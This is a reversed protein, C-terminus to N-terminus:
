QESPTGANINASVAQSGVVTVDLTGVVPINGSGLDADATVSVQSAGLPGAAVIDASMGDAAPAISLVTSDSVSWVPVGDVPAANGRADVFAVTLSCKQIDTLVLAM